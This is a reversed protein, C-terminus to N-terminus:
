SSLLLDLSEPLTLAQQDKLGSHVSGNSAGNLKSATRTQLQGRLVFSESLIADYDLPEPRARTRWMDEMSLLNEIDHKFAQVFHSNSDPGISECPILLFLKRLSLQHLASAKEFVIRGATQDPAHIRLAARVRKFAQAEKRLAAIETAIILPLYTPASLPTGLAQVMKVMKRRTTLNGRTGM